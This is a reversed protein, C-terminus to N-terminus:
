PQYGFDELVDELAVYHDGRKIERGSEFWRKYADKFAVVIDRHEGCNSSNVICVRWRKNVLHELAFYVKWEALSDLYEYIEPKFDLSFELKDVFEVRNDVMENFEFGFRALAKEFKAAKGKLTPFAFKGAREYEKDDLDVLVTFNKKNIRIDRM